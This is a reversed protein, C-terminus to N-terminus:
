SRAKAIREAVAFAEDISEQQALMRELEAYPIMWSGDPLRVAAIRGSKAWRGVTSTEKGLRRAM